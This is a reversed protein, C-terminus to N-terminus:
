GDALIKQMVKDLLEDYNAAGNDGNKKRSKVEKKEGKAASTEKIKGLRVTTKSPAEEKVPCATESIMTAAAQKRDEKKEAKIIRNSFGNAFYSKCFDGLTKLHWSVDWQNYAAWIFMCAAVSCVLMKVSEGRSGVVYYQYIAAFIGIGGAALAFNKVCGNLVNIPVHALKLRDIYKDVFAHIDQVDVDLAAADEYRKRMRVLEKKKTHGMDGANKILSKLGGSILGRGLVGLFGFMVILYVCVNQSFLADFM